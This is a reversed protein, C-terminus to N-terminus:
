CIDRISVSHTYIYFTLFLWRQRGLVGDKRDLIKQRGWVGM